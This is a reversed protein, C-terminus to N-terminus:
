SDHILAKILYCYNILDDIRGDIPESLNQPIGHAHARIYNGVADYHKSMYILAVQLSTVGFLEAGRKFNALRDDSGAYEGGKTILLESTSKVTDDVLKNFTDLNM